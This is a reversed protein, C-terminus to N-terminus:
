YLSCKIQCNKLYVLEELLYAIYSEVSVSEVVIPMFGHNVGCIESCQGYFVGCRNIFLSVQNLRGPCADLKIAFSPMAWCHLVDASTVLLRIHTNVPLLLRNDVELLRLGGSELDETSLMYSDFEVDGLESWVGSNDGSYFNTYEYSWYWQHGIIKLTIAPDILEDVSYLLAFSPVAIFMLILAPVITWVIELVSGHVMRSSYPHKKYHFNVLIRFIMWGVFFVIWILIAMLDHHFRIIGEAVPTAPDQIGFQWPVAADCYIIKSFFFM